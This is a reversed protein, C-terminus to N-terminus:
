FHKWLESVPLDQRAYVGAVRGHKLIVFRDCVRAALGINQEVLVITRGKGRQQQLFDALESVAVGSLGVSPEDVMLVSPQAALGRANAVIQQQGGSLKGVPTTQRTRLWSWRGSLEEWSQQAQLKSRCFAGLQVNERISMEPFLARGQPVLVLGARVRRAVPWRTVDGGKLIVHGSTPVLSGALCRLLTTKGAGNHGLIGLAEGERVEINVDELVPWDGYAAAIGQASLVVEGAGAACAVHAAAPRLAAIEIM